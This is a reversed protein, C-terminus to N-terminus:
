PEDSKRSNLDSESPGSTFRGSAPSTSKKDTLDFSAQNSAGEKAPDSSETSAEPDDTELKNMLAVVLLLGVMGFAMGIGMGVPTWWQSGLRRDLYAGGLGPLVMLLVVALARSIGNIARNSVRRIRDPDAPM